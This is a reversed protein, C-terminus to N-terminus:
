GSDVLTRKVGMMNVLPIIIFSENQKQVELSPLEYKQFNIDLNSPNIFQIQAVVDNSKVNPPIYNKQLSIKHMTHYSPSAQILDWLSIKALTNKLQEVINYEKGSQLPFHPASHM